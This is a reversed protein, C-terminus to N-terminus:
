QILKGTELMKWVKQGWVRYSLNVTAELIEPVTELWKSSSNAKNAMKPVSVNELILKGKKLHYLTTVSMVEGGSDVVSPLDVSIQFINRKHELYPLETIFMAALFKFSKKRIKCDFAVSYDSIVQLEGKVKHKTDFSITYDCKPKDLSELKGTISSSLKGDLVVALAKGYVFGLDKGDKIIAIWKTGKAKGAASVRLGKPLTTVKPASTKPAKRVNVDKLAIYRSPSRVLTKGLFKQELLQKEASQANSQVPLTWFPYVAFVLLLNKGRTKMSNDATKNVNRPLLLKILNM